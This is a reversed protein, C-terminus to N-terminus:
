PQDDKKDPKDEPRPSPLGGDDKIKVEPPPPPVEGTAQFFRIDAKLREYTAADADAQRGQGTKAYVIALREVERTRALHAKLYPIRDEKKDFMALEAELLRESWGFL